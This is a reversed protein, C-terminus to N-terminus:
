LRSIIILVFPKLIDNFKLKCCSNINIICSNFVLFFRVSYISLSYIFLIFYRYNRQGVCNGIWPCHHDFREIVNSRYSCGLTRTPEKERGDRGTSVLIVIVAGVYHSDNIEFMCLIYVLWVSWMVGHLLFYCKYLIM